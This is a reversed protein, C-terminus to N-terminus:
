SFPLPDVSSALFAARQSPALSLYKKALAPYIERFVQGPPEFAGSRAPSAL